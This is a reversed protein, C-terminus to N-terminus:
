HGFLMNLMNAVAHGNRMHAADEEEEKPLTLSADVELLRSRIHKIASPKDTAEWTGGSSLGKLARLGLAVKNEVKNWYFDFTAPMWPRGLVSISVARDNLAEEEMGATMHEPQHKMFHRLRQELEIANGRIADEWVAYVRHGRAGKKGFDEFTWWAGGENTIVSYALNIHKFHILASCVADYLKWWNIANIEDGPVNRCAYLLAQAQGQISAYKCCTVALSFKEERCEPHNLVYSICDIMGSSLIAKFKLKPILPTVRTLSCMFLFSPSRATFITYLRKSMCAVRSKEVLSLYPVICSMVIDANSLAVAAGNGTVVKDFGRKRM